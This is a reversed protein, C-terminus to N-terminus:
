SNASAKRPRHNLTVEPPDLKSKRAIHKVGMVLIIGSLMCWIAFTTIVDDPYKVYFHGAIMSTVASVIMINIFLQRKYRPKM